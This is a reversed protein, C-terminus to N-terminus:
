ANFRCVFPVCVWVSMCECVWVCVCEWLVCECVWVSMCMCVGLTCVSGFYVCECVWVSVCEYVCVSGFYVCVFVCEWLVCVGLTCVSGFYVCECLVCVGLTCVCVCVCVGLTTYSCSPTVANHLWLTYVSLSTVAFLGTLIILFLFSLVHMSISTAIGASLFTTCFSFSFFSFYLLKLISVSRVHSMFHLIIGTIFPAAPMTVFPQLFFKSVMVPFCDNCESCIVAIRPVDCM